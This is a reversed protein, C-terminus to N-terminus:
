KRKDRSEKEMLDAITPLDDDISDANGFLGLHELTSNKACPGGKDFAKIIVKAGKETIGSAGLELKTLTKNKALMELLHGVGVDNCNTYHLYLEELTSNNTLAAALFAVGADTIPNDNLWLQKVGMKKNRWRKITDGHDQNTEDLFRAIMEVTYDQVGKFAFTVRALPAIGDDESGKMFQFDADEDMNDAPLTACIYRQDYFGNLPALPQARVQAYAAGTNRASPHMQVVDEQEYTANMRNTMMLDFAANQKSGWDGDATLEVEGEEDKAAEEESDDEEPEEEEESESSADDAM